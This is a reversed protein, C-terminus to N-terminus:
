WVAQSESQPRPDSLDDDPVFAENMANTEVISNALDACLAAYESISQGPQRILPCTNRDSPCQDLCNFEREAVAVAFAAQEM